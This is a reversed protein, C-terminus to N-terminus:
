KCTFGVKELNQQMKGRVDECHKQESQATAVVKSQGFKQYHLECGAGKPLVILTREDKGSKCRMELGSSSGSNGTNEKTPLGLKESTLATSPSATAAPATNESNKVPNSSCAIFPILVFATILYKM